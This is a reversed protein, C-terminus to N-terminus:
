RTRALDVILPRHDSGIAPGIAVHLPRWGGCSLVHDIRVSFRRLVRTYGFGTGVRSFANACDGFYERYIRSEVPMNFDGAIVADKAAGLIWRSVRGAGIDRILINAPMRASSGAYRLSELGKRPTELHIGAVAITDGGSLLHFLFANGTGGQDGTEVRELVMSDVVPLRSGVCIGGRSYHATWGPPWLDLRATRPLCEQFVMVDPTYAALATPIESVRPNSFGAINFTIIRLTRPPTTSLWRRWGTRFGMMPGVTVLLGLIVAALLRPRLLVAGVALPLVPVLLLWRPGFLLVSAPWWADGFLWMFASALVVIALYGWVLYPFVGALRGSRFGRLISPRGARAM